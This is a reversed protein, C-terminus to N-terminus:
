SPDVHSTETRIASTYNVRLVRGPIGRRDVYHQAITIIETRIKKETVADVSRKFFGGAYYVDLLKNEGDSTRIAVTGLKGFGPLKNMSVVLNSDIKQVHFTEM